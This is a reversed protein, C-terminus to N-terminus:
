LNYCNCDDHYYLIRGVASVFINSVNCFQTNWLCCIFKKGFTKESAIKLAESDPILIALNNDNFIQLYDLNFLASDAVITLNIENALAFEKLEEIDDPAINIFNGLTNEMTTFVLLNKDESLFNTLIEASKSNGIILIRM